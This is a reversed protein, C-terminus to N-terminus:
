HDPCQPTEREAAARRSEQWEFQQNARKQDILYKCVVEEFRQKADGKRTNGMLAIADIIFSSHLGSEYKAIIESDPMPIYVSKKVAM